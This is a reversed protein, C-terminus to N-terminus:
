NWCLIEGEEMKHCVLRIEWILCLLAAALVLMWVGFYTITYWRPDSLPFLSILSSMIAAGAQLYDQRKSRLMTFVLLQLVNSIVFPVLLYVMVRFLSCSTNGAIAFIMVTFMLIDLCGFWIMKVCWVQKFNLYCTQELEMMGISSSRNLELMLFVGACSAAVSAAGLYTLMNEGKWQFYGFLVMMLGLCLLQGGLCFGSIYKLQGRFVEWRRPCYVYRKEEVTRAINELVKQKQQGDTKIEELVFKDRRNVKEEKKGSVQM